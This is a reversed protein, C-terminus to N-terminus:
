NSFFGGAANRKLFNRALGHRYNKRPGESPQAEIAAEARRAHKTHITGTSSNSIPLNPLRRNFEEIGRNPNDQIPEEFFPLAESTKQKGLIRDAKAQNREQIDAYVLTEKRVFNQWIIQQKWPDSM